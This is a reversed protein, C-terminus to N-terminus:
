APDPTCGTSAWAAPPSAPIPHRLHEFARFGRQLYELLDDGPNGVAEIPAVPEEGVDLADNLLAVQRLQAGIRPLEERRGARLDLSIVDSSSPTIPVRPVSTVNTSSARAAILAASRGACSGTRARRPLGSWARPRRDAASAAPSEPSARVAARGRAAAGPAAPTPPRDTGPGGTFRHSAQSTCAGAEKDRDDAQCADGALELPGVRYRAAHELWLQELRLQGLWRSPLCAGAFAGM